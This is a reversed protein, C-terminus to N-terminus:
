RKENWGSQLYKEAKIEQVENRYEETWEQAVMRWNWKALLLDVIKKSLFRPELEMGTLERIGPLSPTSDSQELLIGGHQLLIKRTKRQASGVVKHSQILIDGPTIHKFCLCDQTGEGPSHALESPIGLGDLAEAIVQHMRTIWVSHQDSILKEPLALAYTLEHDHVLTMGGSSRRVFPLAELAPHYRRVSHPQFYGLSVTPPNWTYFRLVPHGQAAISMLAEDRAMNTPGDAEAFPM